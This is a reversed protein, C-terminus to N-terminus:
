AARLESLYVKGTMPPMDNAYTRWFLFPERTENLDIKRTDISIMLFAGLESLSLEDSSFIVHSSPAVSYEMWAEGFIGSPVTISRQGFGRPQEAMKRPVTLVIKFDSARVTGENKLRIELNFTEATAASIRHRTFQPVLVPHKLRNMIDRIEYDDM